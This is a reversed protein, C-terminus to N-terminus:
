KVTPKGASEWALIGGDLDAVDAFGLERMMATAKGSRNGSRCYVLYKKTRDLASLKSQFDPEYFDIMAAQDLHGSAFEDPTRFDLLTVTEDALLQTATEVSVLRVGADSATDKAAASNTGAQRAASTATVQTPANSSSCGSLLALLVSAIALTSKFMTFVEKRNM